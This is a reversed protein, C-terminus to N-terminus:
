AMARRARWVFALLMVGGLVALGTTAPEPIINVTFINSTVQHDNFQGDAVITRSDLFITYTGPTIAGSISVTITSIFYSGPPLPMTTDAIVAGLDDNNVPDLLGNPGTFAVADSTILDSFPSAGINRAILSFFGSGNNSQYFYTIGVSSFTTVINLDFTFTGGPTSTVFPNGGNLVTATANQASARESALLPFLVLAIVLLGNKLISNTKM